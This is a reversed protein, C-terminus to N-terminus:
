SPSYLANNPRWKPHKQFFTEATVEGSEKAQKILRHFATMSLPTTPTVQNSVSRYTQARKTVKAREEARILHYIDVALDPDDQVDVRIGTINGEVDRILEVGEM